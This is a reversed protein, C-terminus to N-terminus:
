AGKLTVETISQAAILTRYEEGSVNKEYEVTIETNPEVSQGTVVYRSMRDRDGPDIESGDELTVHLIVSGHGYDDMLEGGHSLYGVSALNRGVYSRVYFTYRDPSAKIPVMLSLAAEDPDPDDKKKVLLDIEEISAMDVLNRYERGEEDLFYSLRIETGPEQNQAVVVYEKLADADKVDLFEGTVTVFNLNLFTNGYRDRRRGDYSTFGAEAASKNCYDAVYRVYRDEGFTDPESLSPGSEAPESVPPADPGSEAPESVPPADPGPAGCSGCYLGTCIEGCEPCEWEDPNEAGPRPTGCVTCFDGVNLEGCIGCVWADSPKQGTLFSDSFAPAPVVLVLVCALVASFFCKKNM